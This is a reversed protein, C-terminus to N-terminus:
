SIPTKAYISPKDPDSSSLFLRDSTAGFFHQWPKLDVQDLLEYDRSLFYLTFYTGGDRLFSAAYIYDEDYYAEWIDDVPLGCDTVVGSALDLERFGPHELKEFGYGLSSLDPEYYYLTSDTAYFSSGIEAPLTRYSGTAIDLEVTRDDSGVGYIKDKYLSGFYFHKAASYYDVVPETQTNDALSLIIM